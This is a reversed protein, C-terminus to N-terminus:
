KVREGVGGHREVQGVSAGLWESVAQGMLWTISVRAVQWGVWGSAMM